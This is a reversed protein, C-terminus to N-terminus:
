TGLIIAHSVQFKFHFVFFSFWIGFCDQDQEAVTFSAIPLVIIDAPQGTVKQPWL